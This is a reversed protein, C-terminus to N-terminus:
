LYMSRLNTCERSNPRQKHGEWFVVCWKTSLESQNANANSFLLWQATKITCVHCWSMRLYFQRKGLLLSLHWHNKIECHGSSTERDGHGTSGRAFSSARSRGFYPCFGDILRALLWLEVNIFCRPQSSSTDESPSHTPPLRLAPRLIILWGPYSIILELVSM